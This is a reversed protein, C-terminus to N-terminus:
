RCLAEAHLHIRKRLRRSVGFAAAAGFLPLPGPVSSSPAPAPSSPSLSSSTVASGAGNSVTELWTTPGFGSTAINYLYVGGIGTLFGIGDADSLLSSEAGSWRFSNSYGSATLLSTIPYSTGSASIYTGNIATIAYTVGAAPTVDATTFVGSASGLTSSAISFNWSTVAFAPATASAPVALAALFAVRVLPLSFFQGM